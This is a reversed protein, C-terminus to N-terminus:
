KAKPGDISGDPLVDFVSGDSMTYRTNPKLQKGQASLAAKFTDATLKSAAAAGTGAKARKAM